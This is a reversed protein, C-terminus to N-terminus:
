NTASLCDCERKDMNFFHDTRQRRQIRLLRSNTYGMYTRKIGNCWQIEIGGFSSRQCHNCCYDKVVFSLAKGAFCQRCFYRRQSNANLNQYGTFTLVASNFNLVMSFAAVGIFDTVNVPVILQGPCGSITQCVTIINPLVTLLAGNSYVVPTCNGSVKCRYLYGNLALQAGTINMTPTTVNSYYGGNSLDTYLDAVKHKGAVPLDIRIRFRYYQFQHKPRQM